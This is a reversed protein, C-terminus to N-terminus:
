LWEDGGQCATQDPEPSATCVGDPAASEHCLDAEFVVDAVAQRVIEQRYSECRWATELDAHPYPFGGVAPRAPGEDFRYRPSLKM